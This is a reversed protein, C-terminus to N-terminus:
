RTFLDIRAFSINDSKPRARIVDAITKNSSVEGTGERKAIHGIEPTHRSIKDQLLEVNTPFIKDHRGIM